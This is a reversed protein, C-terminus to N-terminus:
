RQQAVGHLRAKVCPKAGPEATKLRVLILIAPMRALPQGRHQRLLFYNLLALTSSGDSTWPKVM